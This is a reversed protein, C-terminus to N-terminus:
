KPANPLAALLREAIFRYGQANFHGMQRHPYLSLVDPHAELVPLLDLWAIKEQELTELVRAREFQESNANFRGWDPVYVFTFRGGSAEVLDRARALIRGLLAVRPGAESSDRHLGLVIRLRSLKLARSLADGRGDDSAAPDRALLEDVARQQLLAIQADVERKQVRLVSEDSDLYRLLEPFSEEYGLDALDNGEYYLWFVQKPRLPLGYEILNALEWLPGAGGIGLNVTRPVAARVNAAIDEDVGVCEGATFSDGVLVVDAQGEHLGPPNAFGYEDSTFVKYQGDAFCEVIAQSSVNSTPFVSRGRVEVTRSPLQYIRPYVADGGARRDRFVERITRRDYPRGEREADAIAAATARERSGARHLELAMLYLEALFLPAALSAGLVLLKLKTLAPLRIAFVAGAALALPLALFVAAQKPGTLFSARELWAYGALAVCALALGAFLASCVAGIRRGPRSDSV